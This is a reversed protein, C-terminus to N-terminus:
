LQLFLLLLNLFPLFMSSPPKIEPEPLLAFRPLEPQIHRRRGHCYIASLASLASPCPPYLADACFDQEQESGQVQVQVQVQVQEPVQVQVQEPVQEPGSVSEQEQEPGPVQEPVQEPGQAQV